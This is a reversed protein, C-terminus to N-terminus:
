EGNLIRQCKKLKDMIDRLECEVYDDDLTGRLEAIDDIVCDIALVGDLIRLTPSQRINCKKLEGNNDSDQM